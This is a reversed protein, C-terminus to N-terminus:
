RVLFCDLNDTEVRNSIAILNMEQLDYDVSRRCGEVHALESLHHRVLWAIIPLDWVILAVQTTIPSRHQRM